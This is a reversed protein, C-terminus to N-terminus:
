ASRDVGEIGTSREHDPTAEPRGGRHQLYNTALLRSRWDAHQAIAAAYRAQRIAVRGKPAEDVGPGFQSEVGHRIMEIADARLQSVRSPTVDLLRGLEDVSRGELYHGVIILRLREPLNDLAARLYGHLERSELLEEIDMVTPDALADAAQPGPEGAIRDLTGVSGNAVAAHTARLEEIPIGSAAAVEDAEPRRGLQRHLKTEVRDIERATDRVKRPVWDNSRMVDMVAGRIRRAAYAAFPIDRGFDYRSAAETLGLRGAALLEQQDIFSPFSSTVRRVVHEVLPLNDRILQDRRPDM